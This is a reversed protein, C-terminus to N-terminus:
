FDINTKEAVAKFKPQLRLTKIHLTSNTNYHQMHGLQNMKTSYSVILVNIQQGLSINLLNQELFSQLSIKNTYLIMMPLLSTVEQDDTICISDEDEGLEYCFCMRKM